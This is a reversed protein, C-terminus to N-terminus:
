GSAGALPSGANPRDNKVNFAAAQERAQRELDDAWNTRGFVRDWEEGQERAAEPPYTVVWGNEVALCGEERALRYAFDFVADMLGAAPAWRCRAYGDQITVQEAVGSPYTTLLRAVRDPDIPKSVAHHTSSVKKADFHGVRTYHVFSM